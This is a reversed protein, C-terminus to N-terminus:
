NKGEEQVHIVETVSQPVDIRLNLIKDEERIEINKTINEWLGPKYISDTLDDNYVVNHSDAKSNIHPYNWCHVINSFITKWFSTIRHVYGSSTTLLSIYFYSGYSLKTIM